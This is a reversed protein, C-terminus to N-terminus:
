TFSPSPAVSLFILPWPAYGPMGTRVSSRVFSAEATGASLRSSPTRAACPRGVASHAPRLPSHHLAHRLGATRRHIVAGDIRLRRVHCLRRVQRFPSASGSSLRRAHRIGCARRACSSQVCSPRGDIRPRPKSRAAGCSSTARMAVDDRFRLRSAAGGAVDRLSDPHEALSERSSELM